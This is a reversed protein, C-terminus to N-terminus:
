AVSFSVQGAQTPGGELVTHAREGFGGIAGRPSEVKPFFDNEQLKM